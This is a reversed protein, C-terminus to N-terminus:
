QQIFSPTEILTLLGKQMLNLSQLNAWLMILLIRRTSVKVSSNVQLGVKITKMLAGEPFVAQVQPDVTSSIIGGASGITATELRCRTMIAFYRPLETIVIRVM